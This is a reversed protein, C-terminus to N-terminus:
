TETEWKEVPVSPNYINTVDEAEHVDTSKPGSAQMALAKGM